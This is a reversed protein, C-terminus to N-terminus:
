FSSEFKRRVDTVNPIQKLARMVRMLQIRNDVQVLLQLQPDNQDDPINLGVISAGEQAVTQTAHSISMRVDSVKLDIPAIFHQNANNGWTAEEWRDANNTKAHQAHMCSARHVTLGHGAREFVCIADGLVPHCCRALQATQAQGNVVVEIAHDQKLPEKAQELLTQIRHLVVVFSAKGSGVMGYLSARSDVGFEEMVSNWIHDPITDWQLHAHPAERELLQRGIKVAEDFDLSRLYQRIEARAKGSRVFDLWQPNPHATMGTVIEVMDGNQLRTDISRTQSNIRCSSVHNGVDSHIQYAFDVPTSDQPLSIIKGKPTFVYIRDPFLDAKINEYFESTSSSKQQLDLLSQLWAHTLTQIESESGRNLWHTLIGQEAIDNMQETRIQFEVPTGAPGIVTTHLSQYGNSKPIAIFDKFRGQVPKYMQHLAGLTRYCDERTSVIVRFGYLDFVEAFSVKKIRMQSYIGYCTKERGLVRGKINARIFMDKTDQLIKELAPKRNQRAAILEKYLVAYRRPHYNELCLEQLERFCHNIGLHHAMPVYIDLTEKAIRRRKEPRMVGLTRMNHLRDALKVLIVRVDKSMALLMKKFSEAQAIENSSFKLKDLKSVGDVIEATTIGFLKALENKSHGTDELVDHMLGAQIAACDLHWEALISAVAIPHTIYPEGSKRFQGLHADDAYRYAAKIREVDARSMYTECKEILSAATAIVAKKPPTVLPLETADDAPLAPKVPAKKVPNSSQSLVQHRISALIDSSGTQLFKPVM